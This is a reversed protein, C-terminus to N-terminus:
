VACTQEVLRRLVAPMGSRQATRRQEDASTGRALAQEALERV